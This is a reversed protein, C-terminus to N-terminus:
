ASCAYWVDWTMGLLVMVLGLGFFVCGGGAGVAWVQSLGCRAQVGPCATGWLATYSSRTFPLNFASFCNTNKESRNLELDAM